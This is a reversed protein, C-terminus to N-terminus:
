KTKRKHIDGRRHHESTHEPNTTLQLNEIRNDLKDGNIHHVIEKSNLPRKLYEEMIKRQYLVNKGNHHIHMYGSSKDLFPEGYPAIIRHMRGYIRLRQYHMECMGKALGPRECGEIECIYPPEGYPRKLRYLRGYKRLLMYHNQCLGKALQPNNCNEVECIFNKVGNLRRSVQLEGSKRLEKYHIACFGRCFYTKNCGNISCKFEQKM